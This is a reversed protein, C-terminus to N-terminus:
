GNTHGSDDKFNVQEQLANSPAVIVMLDVGILDDFDAMKAHEGLDVEIRISRDAMLKPRVLIAGSTVNIM